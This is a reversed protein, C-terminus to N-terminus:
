ISNNRKTKRKGMNQRYQQKEPRQINHPHQKNHINTTRKHIRLKGKNVYIKFSGLNKTAIVAM